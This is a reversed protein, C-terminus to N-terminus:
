NFVHLREDPYENGRTWANVELCFEGVYASDVNPGAVRVDICIQLRFDVCVTSQGLESSFVRLQLLFDYSIHIFLSSAHSDAHLHGSGPLKHATTLKFAEPEQKRVQLNAAETSM